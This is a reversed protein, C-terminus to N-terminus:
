KKDHIGRTDLTVVVTDQPENAFHPKSPSIDLSTNLESERAVILNLCDRISNITEASLPHRMGPPTQTDKAVETLTKKVLTLIRAEQTVSNSQNHSNGM